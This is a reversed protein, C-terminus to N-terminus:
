KITTQQSLALKWVGDRLIWVRTARYPTGNFLTHHAIMVATDGYVWVRVWQAEPVHVVTSHEKQDRITKMRDAKDLLGGNPRILMFDESVHDAWGKADHGFNATELAQWSAVVSHVAATKPAYPVEKCPNICTAKGKEPAPAAAPTPPLMPNAQYVMAKWGSPEAIWIRGFRVDENGVKGMGTVVGVRGYVRADPDSENGATAGLTKWAALAQARTWTKGDRNTWTFRPGLLSAAAKEDGKAAAEAFSHDAAILAEKNAAGKQAALASGGLAGAALLVAASLGLRSLRSARSFSVGPLVEAPRWRRQKAGSEMSAHREVEGTRM